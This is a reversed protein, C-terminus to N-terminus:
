KDGSNGNGTSKEPQGMYTTVAYKVAFDIIQRHMPEHLTPDFAPLAVGEPGITNELVIMHPQKVFSYRYEGIVFNLPPFVVETNEGVMVYAVNKPPYKYASKYMSTIVGPPVEQVSIAMDGNIVVRDLIGLVNEGVFFKRGGPFMSDGLKSANFDDVIVARLNGIDKSSLLKLILLEQGKTLCVSTEYNDLGKSGATALDEFAIDFESKLETLNM